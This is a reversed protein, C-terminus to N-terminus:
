LIGSVNLAFSFVLDEAYSPIKLKNSPTLPQPMFLSFPSSKLEGELPLVPLSCMDKSVTFAKTSKEGKKEETSELQQRHSGM